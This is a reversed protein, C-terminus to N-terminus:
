YAFDDVRFATASIRTWGFAPIITNIHGRRDLTLSPIGHGHELQGQRPVDNLGNVRREEAGGAALEAEDVDRNAL